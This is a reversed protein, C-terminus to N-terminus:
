PKRTIRGDTAYQLTGQQKVYDLIANRVLYNLSTRKHYQKLMDAKDGGNAVYDSTALTYTQNLNLPKGQVEIETAKGNDIQFRVGGVPWGDAAAVLQLLENLTNGSIELVDIMNDFPMLEYVKGVTVPGPEITPLRIGGFNMVCVDIKRPYHENAYTLTADCVMNGLTGEPKDKTLRTTITGIVTNMQADLKAKYPAILYHATSDYLRLSDANIRTLQPQKTVITYPQKCAVALGVLTGWLLLKVNM